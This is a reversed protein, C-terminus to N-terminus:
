INMQNQSTQIMLYAAIDFLSYGKSKFLCKGTITSHHAYVNEDTWIVHCSLKGEELLLEFKSSFLSNDDGGSAFIISSDVIFLSIILNIVTM